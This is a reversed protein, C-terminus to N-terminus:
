FLLRRLLTSKTPTSGSINARLGNNVFNNVMTKRRGTLDSCGSLSLKLGFQPRIQAMVHLFIGFNTILMTLLMFFKKLSCRDKVEIRRLACGLRFGDAFRM